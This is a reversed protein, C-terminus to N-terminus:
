WNRWKYPDFLCVILIWLTTIRWYTENCLQLLRAGEAWWIVRHRVFVLAFLSRQKREVEPMRIIHNNKVSMKKTWSVMTKKFHTLSFIMYFHAGNESLKETHTNHASRFSRTFTLALKRECQRQPSRFLRLSLRRQLESEFNGTAAYGHLSTCRRPASDVGSREVVAFHVSVGRRASSSKYKISPCPVTKASRWLRVQACFGIRLVRGYLELKPKANM